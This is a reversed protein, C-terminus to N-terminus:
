PRAPWCTCCRSRRRMSGSFAPGDPPYAVARLYTAMAERDHVADYAHTWGVDPDEWWGVFAHDLRHEPETYLALPVQYLDRGGDDYTVEALDVVVRPGEEAIVGLRRVGTVSLGRGKGGFWRAGEIYESLQRRSDDTPSSALGTHADDTM